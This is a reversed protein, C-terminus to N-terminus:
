FCSTLVSDIDSLPIDTLIIVQIILQSDLNQENEKMAATYANRSFRCCFSPYPRISILINSKIGILYGQFSGKMRSFFGEIDGRDCKCLDSAHHTELGFITECTMVIEFHLKKVRMYWYLFRGQYIITQTM